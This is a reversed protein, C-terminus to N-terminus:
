GGHQLTVAATCAFMAALYVLADGFLGTTLNLDGGAVTRIGALRTEIPDACSPGPM